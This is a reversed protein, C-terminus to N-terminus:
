KSLSPFYRLVSSIRFFVSVHPVHALSGALGWSWFSSGRKIQKHSACVCLCSALRRRGEPLGSGVSGPGVPRTWPGLLRFLVDGFLVLGVGGVQAPLSSLHVWGPGRLPNKM